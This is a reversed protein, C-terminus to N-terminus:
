VGESIWVDQIWGQPPFEPPVSSFSPYPLRAAILLFPAELWIPEHFWLITFCVNSVSIYM